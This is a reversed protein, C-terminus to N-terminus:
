DEYLNNKKFNKKAELPQLNNLSWCKKFEPDEADKYKFWSKPRKHDIHWKGYNEWNMWPEFLSELHAMLDQLTYDVLSEWHRGAKKGKLADRIQNSIISNLLRKPDQRM